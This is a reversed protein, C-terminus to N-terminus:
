TNLDCMLMRVEKEKEPILKINEVRSLERFVFIRSNISYENKKVNFHKSFTLFFEPTIKENQFTETATEAGDM